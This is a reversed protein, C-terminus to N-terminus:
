EKNEIIAKNIKKEYNDFSYKKSDGMKYGTKNEKNKVDKIYQKEENNLNKFIPTLWSRCFPHLPPIPAVTLDFVQGDLSRCENTTVNDLVANYVVGEFQKGNAKMTQDVIDNVMKQVATGTFGRIGNKTKNISKNIDEFLIRLDRNNKLAYNTKSKIDEFLRNQIRKYETQYTTGVISIKPIQEILVASTLVYPVVPINTRPEIIESYYSNEFEAQALGLQLLQRQLDEDLDDFHVKMLDKIKNLVPAVAGNEYEIIEAKIQPFLTNLKALVEDIIREKQGELLFRQTNVADYIM